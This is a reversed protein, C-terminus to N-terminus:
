VWHINVKEFEELEIDRMISDADISNSQGEKFPITRNCSGGSFWEENEFHDPTAFRFFVIAKHNNFVLKLAKRYAYGFGIETLNKEPCYHCGTFMGKEHYIASKFFWKGGVIVVYDFDKYQNM